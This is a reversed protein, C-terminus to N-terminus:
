FEPSAGGAGGLLTPITPSSNTPICLTHNPSVEFSFVSSSASSAWFWRSGGGAVISSPVESPSIALSCSSSRVVLKQLGDSADANHFPFPPSMGAFAVVILLWNELIGEFINLETDVRRCNLLNFVQIFVLANHVLAMVMSNGEDTRDVGLIKHGAFHLIITALIQYISQITTMWKMDVTFLGERSELGWDSLSRMPPDTTLTLAALSQLIDIWLLQVSIMPYESTPSPEAVIMIAIFTPIGTSTQFLLVKRINEIVCRGWMIAKVISAFSDDMLVINSAQKVVETDSIGKSFWVHAAKLAPGDNSGDGTVVVTEGLERLTEILMRKDEISARALIQLNEVRTARESKDLARFEPGEMIGLKPSYIGCQAAVERATLMSEGTCMIVDINARHCDAVAARVDPRLPDEIGIIAVLNMDNCLEEYPIENASAWPELDRYCLAITRLMQDAYFKITRSIEERAVGDIAETEIELDPHQCQDPNKSVVVHRVCRGALIESAGKLFLRHRGSPLCVVVGMAMRDSSFPIMKVIEASERTEKWNEWGLDKAFQLLATETGSGVFIPKKTELNIDEFATSNIAISQNLLCKLRSSLITNIDGQNISFDDIHTQSVQPEATADTVDQEQPHDQNQDPADQRAKDDDLNHVFKAHIGISSAVVRMANQTLTGTKDICIVSTNAIVEYSGLTRVVLNETTMKKAAFALASTFTLPLGEPVTASVLAILIM